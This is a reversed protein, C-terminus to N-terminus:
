LEMRGIESRVDLIDDQLFEMGVAFAHSRSLIPSHVMTRPKGLVRDTGQLERVSSEERGGRDM